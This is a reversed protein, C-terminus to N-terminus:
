EELFNKYINAPNENGHHANFGQVAKTFMPDGSNAGAKLVDLGATKQFIKYAEKDDKHSMIRDRHAIADDIAQTNARNTQDGFMRFFSILYPIAFPIWFGTTMTLGNAEVVEKIETPNFSGYLFFILVNYGIFAIAHFNFPIVYFWQALLKVILLLFNKVSNM